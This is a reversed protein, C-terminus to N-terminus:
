DIHSFLVVRALGSHSMRMTRVVVVGGRGLTKNFKSIFQNITRENNM